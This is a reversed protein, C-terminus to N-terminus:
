WFPAPSPAGERNFAPHEGMRPYGGHPIAGIFVQGEDPPGGHFSRPMVLLIRCRSAPSSLPKVSMSSRTTMMMRPMRSAIAIGDYRDNLSRAFWDAALALTRAAM